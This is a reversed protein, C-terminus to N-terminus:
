HACASRPFSLLSYEYNVEPHMMYVRKCVNQCNVPGSGLLEVSFGSNEITNLYHEIRCNIINVYTAAHHMAYHQLVKKYSFVLDDDFFRNITVFSIRIDKDLQWEEDFFDIKYGFLSFFHEVSDNGLIVSSKEM